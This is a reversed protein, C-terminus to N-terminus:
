FGSTGHGGDYEAKKEPSLLCLRAAALENLIRQSVDGHRGSQFSRAHGMRADAASAIVEPDSEFRALGLLRYHDPPQQQPPIGLWKHYSDFPAM